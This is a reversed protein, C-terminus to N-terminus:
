PDMRMKICGKKVWFRLSLSHYDFNHDMCGVYVRMCRKPVNPAPRERYVFRDIRYSGTFLPNMSETQFAVMTEIFNKDYMRHRRDVESPAVSHREDGYEEGYKGLRLAKEHSEIARLSPAMRPRHIAIAENRDVIYKVKEMIEPPIEDLLSPGSVRRNKNCDAMMGGDDRGKLAESKRKM